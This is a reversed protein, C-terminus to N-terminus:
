RLHFYYKAYESSLVKVNFQDHFTPTMCSLFVTTAAAFFPADSEDQRTKKEEGEPAFSKISVM